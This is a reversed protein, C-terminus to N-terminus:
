FSHNKSKGYDQSVKKENNSLDMQILVDVFGVLNALSSDTLESDIRAELGLEDNTEIIQESM